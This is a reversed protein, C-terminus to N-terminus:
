GRLASTVTVLTDPKRSNIVYAVGSIVWLCVSLDLRSLILAMMWRRECRLGAAGYGRACLLSQDKTIKSHTEPTKFGWLLLSQDLQFGRMARLGIAFPIVWVSVSLSFQIIEVIPEGSDARAGALLSEGIRYLNEGISDARAGALLSEGIRYLNGGTSDARAGALLSEGIRYLNGGTSDARAGAPM